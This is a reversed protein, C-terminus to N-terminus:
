FGAQEFRRDYTLAETIGENEMVRFSACDTHSWQKDPRSRFLQFSDDFQASSQPIIRTNSDQRLRLVLATAARRFVAGRESFANLLETLVMETTVLRTQDLSHSMAVAREHLNDRPSLLAIWYVADVFLVRM